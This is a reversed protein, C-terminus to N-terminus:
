APKMFVPKDRAAVTRSVFVANLIVPYSHVLSVNAAPNECQKGSCGVGILDIAVADRQVSYEVNCDPGYFV